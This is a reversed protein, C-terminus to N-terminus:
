FDLSLSFYFVRPQIIQNEIGHAWDLRIFYGFLMTRLGVGYGAVIPDRNSDIIVKANGNEIINNDYANNGSWPTLGSWATGMDFFGVVQLHNLFSYNLPYNALYRIIPWRIETNILSFNSGNRINQVFGRMNTALTQFSYNQSNSVPVTYDFVQVRSPTLNTWNDVSGLYYILRSNGFSSSAAFRSAFILNRHLPVYYRFDAGLVYLDSIGNNLQTYAEAFIKYRTGSYLNIGLNRTNDFILEGKLTTWLRHLDAAELSRYDISMLVSRDHRAGLTGRLSLVQNFPYKQSYMLEHSFTKIYENNLTANEFAQRHFIYQKDIRGRLNEFSILYENSNFDTAFRVGGTIKYNEFLDNAGLKFLLNFGPNYYVAGGNFTQYSASLFSFDVQNVVYNTYFSTEYIRIKPTKSAENSSSDRLSLDFVYNEYDVNRHIFTSDKVLNKPITDTSSKKSSKVKMYDSVPLSPLPNINLKNLFIRYKLKYRMIDIQQQTPLSLNNEQLNRSSNSVPSVTSFYRYHVTTDVFAVTSDFDSIYRNRIGNKDSLFSFTSAKIHIPHSENSLEFNNLRKLVKSGTNINLMFIDFNDKQLLPKEDVHLTDSVRNSSFVISNSNDYFYPNLDIAFDNTIQENTASILTYIFIDTKGNKVASMVFRKGDHSFSYDIIKDFYLFRRMFLEETEPTYFCLFNTGKDEIMFTLVSGNHNWVLLPFTYDVIQDLQHERKFIRKKKHTSTNYLYIKYQGWENTLYAINEGDPSIKVQQYVKKRSTHKLLNTGDPTNTESELRQFQDLYYAQWDLSLDKLSSGLVFLFANSAGKNIRTLYIINPISTNGYTLYVYRWFSHGAYKADNGTLRNLKEYKKSLLGDKVRDEIETNWENAIFSSLGPIYWDPLNILASNAVNEAFGSGYLMENILLQAISQSILTEFNKYNGDFYLFVKNNIIRTVGGTNYEDNGSVLGINSQRFDSLNNYVIFIIRREFKYDLLLEIKALESECYLHTYAALNKGEEKFYIDYKDYRYFSWSFDTYQVRNKGFSMKLGNYFQANLSLTLFAYFVFCISLIKRYKNMLIQISCSYTANFNNYTHFVFTRYNKYVKYM